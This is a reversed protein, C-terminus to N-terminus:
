CGLGKRLLRRAQCRVEKAARADSPTNSVVLREASAPHQYVFHGSGTTRVLAWGADELERRVQV